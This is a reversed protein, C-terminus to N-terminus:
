FFLFSFSVGTIWGSCVSCRGASALACSSNIVARPIQQEVDENNSSCWLSFVKTNVSCILEPQM